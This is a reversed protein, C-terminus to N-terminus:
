WATKQRVLMTCYLINGNSDKIIRNPCYIDDRQLIKGVVSSVLYVVDERYGPIGAIETYIKEYLPIDNITEVFNLHSIASAINGTPPIRIIEGNNDKINMVHGTLNVIQKM